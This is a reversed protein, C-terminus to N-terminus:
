HVEGLINFLKTGTASVNNDYVTTPRLNCFKEPEYSNFALEV